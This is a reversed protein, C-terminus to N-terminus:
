LEGGRAHFRRRREQEDGDAAGSWRGARANASVPPRPIRVLKVQEGSGAWFDPKATEELLLGATWATRRGDDAIGRQALRFRQGDTRRHRRLRTDEM